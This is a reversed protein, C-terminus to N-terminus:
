IQAIQTIQPQGRRAPLDAPSVCSALSFAGTGKQQQPVLLAQGKKRQNQIPKGIQAIQTIQPQGGGRLCIRLPLALLLRFLTQGKKGDSASKATQPVLLAQGKKRQNRTHKGIQAIQTIQPQGGGCSCVQPSLVLLLRFLAQGKKGNKTTRPLNPLRRSWFTVLLAQGKKCNDGLGVRWDASEKTDRTFIKTGKTTFIPTERRSGGVGTNM